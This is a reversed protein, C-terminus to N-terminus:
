QCKNSGQHIQPRTLSNRLIAAEFDESNFHAPLLSVGNEFNRRYDRLEGM